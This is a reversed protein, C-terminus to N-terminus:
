LSVGPCVDEGYHYECYESMADLLRQMMTEVADEGCRTLVTLWSCKVRRKERKTAESVVNAVVDDILAEFREAFSEPSYYRRSRQDTERAAHKLEDRSEMVHNIAQETADDGLRTFLTLWSVEVDGYMEDMTMTAALSQALCEISWALDELIDCIHKSETPKSTSAIADRREQRTKRM